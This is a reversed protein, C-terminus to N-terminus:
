REEFKTEMLYYNSLPLTFTLFRILPDPNMFSLVIVIIFCHISFIYFPTDAFPLFFQRYIYKYMLVISILGILGFDAITDLIFSHGGAVGIRWCGFFHYKKIVEISMRIKESRDSLGQVEDIDNANGSIYSAVDRIRGAVLESDILNSLFNLLIPLTLYLVGLVFFTSFFLKFKSYANSKPFFFSSLAVIGMLFATTYQSAVIAFVFSVISLIYLISNIAKYKFFCTLIPIVVVLTYIFEFDGINILKYAHILSSDGKASNAYDRCAFPYIKTGFYTTIATVITLMLIVVLIWKISNNKKYTTLYIYMLCYVVDECLKLLYTGLLATNSCVILTYVLTVAFFVPLIKAIPKSINNSVKNVLLLFVAVVIIWYLKTPIILSFYPVKELLFIYFLIEILYNM